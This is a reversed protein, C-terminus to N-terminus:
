MVLGKAVRSSTARTFATSRRELGAAARDEAQQGAGGRYRIENEIATRIFASESQFGRDRTVKAIREDLNQGCRITRPNM